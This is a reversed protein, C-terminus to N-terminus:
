DSNDSKFAGETLRQAPPKEHMAQGPKRKVLAGAQTDLWPLRNLIGETVGENAIEITVRRVGISESSVEQVTTPDNLDDFTVFMPWLPQPKSRRYTDPHPRTRPLERAGEIKVMEQFVEADDALRDGLANEGHRWRDLKAASVHPLLAAEAVKLAYDHGLNVGDNPLNLVAFVPGSPLDLIVAEGELQKDIKKGSSDQITAEEKLRVQRVSSFAKEGEPTSVYITMKYRYDPFRDDCGSLFIAVFALMLLRM